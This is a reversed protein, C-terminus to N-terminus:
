KDAELLVVDLVKQQGDVIVESITQDTYGVNSFTISYSGAALKITYKGDKDTTVGGGKSVTLSTNELPKGNGTVTGTLTGQSFAFFPMFFLVSLVVPALKVKQM